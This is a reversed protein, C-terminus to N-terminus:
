TVTEIAATGQSEPKQLVDGKFCDLFRHRTALAEEQLWEGEKELRLKSIENQLVAFKHEHGEVKHRLDTLEELVSFGQPNSFVLKNRISDVTMDDCANRLKIKASEELDDDDLSRLSLFQM